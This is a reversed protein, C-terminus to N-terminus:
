GSAGDSQVSMDCPAPDFAPRPGASRVSLSAGRDLDEPGDPWAIAIAGRVEQGAAVSRRHGKVEGFDCGLDHWALVRNEEEVLGPPVHRAVEDDGRGDRDYGEWWFAGVQVGDLVDLLEQAFVPEWVSDEM